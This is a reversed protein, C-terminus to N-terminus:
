EDRGEQDEAIMADAIDAAVHAIKEAYSDYPEQQYHSEQTESALVGMVAAAKYYQRMTMGTHPVRVPSNDIQSRIEYDFPYAPGRCILYGPHGNIGTMLCDLPAKSAM